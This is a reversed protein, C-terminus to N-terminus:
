RLTPKRMGALSRGHLDPAGEAIWAELVALDWRVCGGIKLPRPMKGADALRYVTRVSVGLCEAVEGVKILQM